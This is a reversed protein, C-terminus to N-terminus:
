RGAYHPELLRAAQPFLHAKELPARADQTLGAMVVARDPFPMKALQNMQHSIRKAKMFMEDAKFQAAGTTHGPMFGSKPCFSIGAKALDVRFRELTTHDDPTILKAYLLRDIETSDMRRFRQPGGALPTTDELRYAGKRLQEPTPAVPKNKVAM